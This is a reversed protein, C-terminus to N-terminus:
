GGGRRGGTFGRATYRVARRVGVVEERGPAVGLCWRTEGVGGKGVGLRTVMDERTRPFRFAPDAEAIEDNSVFSFIEAICGVGHPLRYKDRKPVMVGLACVLLGLLALVIGYAAMSPFMRVEPTGSVTLAMFLGGGLVPLLVALTSALSVFALRYHRRGVAKYITQFPQCAAYDLLISDGALAGEPNSLEGWPKLQRYSLEVSQFLLFLIQGLLSPIFSYLFNAPSFANGDPRVEVEPSFGGALKTKPHVSVAILAILVGAGTLVFCMLQTSGLCWPLYRHRSEATMAELDTSTSDREPKVGVVAPEGATRVGWWYRGVQVGKPEANSTQFEWFGLRDTMRDQLREKLERRTAISETAKYSPRANSHHLMPVIDAISRIDWQMGTDRRFWFWGLLGVAALYVLHLAVLTWAIAQVTAWRWEGKVYVIGFLASLLPLSFNMLWTAAICIKVPAPGVLRPWLFSRPYLDLFTAGHRETANDRSMREFPLVRLTTAIIAQSYFFLVAGLGQPLIRFLFYHGSNLTGPYVLLGNKQKSYIASFILVAITLVCLTALAVFSPLRLITPTYHLAGYQDGPAAGRSRQADGYPVVVRKTPSFLSPQLRTDHAPAPAAAAAPIPNLEESAIPPAEPGFSRRNPPTYPMAAAPNQLQQAAPPPRTAQSTHIAPSRPSSHTSPLSESLPVGDERTLADLAYQIFPTDDVGPTLKGTSSQSLERSPMKPKEAGGAEAETMAIQTEDFRVSQPPRNRSSPTRQHTARPPRIQEPKPIRETAYHAPPSVAQPPSHAWPLVVPDAPRPSPSNPAPSPSNPYFHDPSMGHYPLVTSQSSSLGSRDSDASPTPPGWFQPPVAAPPQPRLASAGNRNPSDSDYGFEFGEFDM